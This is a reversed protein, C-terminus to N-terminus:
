AVKAPVNKLWWELDPLNDFVPIGLREAENKEARAGSSQEWRPGLVVADSRRLLELTGSLWFADDCLGDMHASNSHPILPFGGLKAVEAGVRRASQINCEREWTTPARYPAAVYVIRM